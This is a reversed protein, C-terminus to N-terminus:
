TKRRGIKKIAKIWLIKFWFSISCAFIMVATIVTAIESQIGFAQMNQGGVQLFSILFGALIAGIPHLLGLLAVAIGTFGEPRIAETLWYHTGTSTLFYLAGGLASLMGSIFMSFLATKKVNIGAYGAADPNSGAARMEFGITTKRLVFWILLAAIVAIFIGINVPKGDFVQDMGLRPIVAAAPIEMTWNLGSEYLEPRSKIFWNLSNVAIYNLMIGSIIVNVNFATKLFASIASWIGGLVSAVILALIWVGSGLSSEFWIAISIASVAGITFQGPTGINFVGAKFAFGFSLGILIIPVAFYIMNGISSLAGNMIFGGTILTTFASWGQAPSSIVLIVLGIVIGILLTIVISIITAVIDSALVDLIRNKGFRAPGSM